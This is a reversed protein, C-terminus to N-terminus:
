TINDVTTSVATEDLVCTCRVVTCHQWKEEKEVNIGNDHNFCLYM